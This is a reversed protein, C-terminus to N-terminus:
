CSYDFPDNAERWRHRRRGKFTRGAWVRVRKGPLMHWDECSVPPDVGVGSREYRSGEGCFSGIMPDSGKRCHIDNEYAMPLRLPSDITEGLWVGKEGGPAFLLGLEGSISESRISRRRGFQDDGRGEPGLLCRCRESLRHSEGSHRNLVEDLDLHRVPFTNCLFSDNLDELVRLVACWILPPIAQWSAFRETREVITDCTSEVEQERLSSRKAIFAIRPKPVEIVVWSTEDDDGVTAGIGYTQRMKEADGRCRPFPLLEDQEMSRECPDLHDREGAGVDRAQAGEVVLIV